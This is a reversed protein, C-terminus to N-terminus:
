IGFLKLIAMIMPMLEMIIQLIETFSISAMAEPNESDIVIAEKDLLTETVRAVVANKAPTRFPSRMIRIARAKRLPGLDSKQIAEVILVEIKDQDIPNM